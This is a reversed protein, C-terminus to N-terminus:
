RDADRKEEEAASNRAVDSTFALRELADEIAVHATDDIDDAADFVIRVVPAAASAACLRAYLAEAEALAVPDDRLRQRKMDMMIEDFGTPFYFSTM